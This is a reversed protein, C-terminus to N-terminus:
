MCVGQMEMFRTLVHLRVTVKGSDVTQLRSREELSSGVLWSGEGMSELRDEVGKLFFGERETWLDGAPRWLPVEMSHAGVGCPVQCLGFGVLRGVDCGDVKWVELVLRPWGELSRGSLHIDLPANWVVDCKGGLSGGDMQWLCTQSQGVYEGELLSWGDGFEFSWRVCFGGEEGGRVVMGLLSLLGSLGFMDEELGDLGVGGCVEGLVHLEPVHEAYM